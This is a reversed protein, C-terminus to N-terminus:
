ISVACGTVGEPFTHYLGESMELLDCGPHATIPPLTAANLGFM